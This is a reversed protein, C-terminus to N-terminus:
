TNEAIERVRDKQNTEKERSLLILFDRKIYIIDGGIGWYCIEKIIVDNLQCLLVVFVDVLYGM